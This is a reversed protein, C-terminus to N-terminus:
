VGYSPTNARPTVTNAPHADTDGDAADPPTTM